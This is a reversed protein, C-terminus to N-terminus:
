EANAHIRDRLYDALHHGASGVDQQQLLHFVLIRQAGKDVLSQLAHSVGPLDEHGLPAEGGIHGDHAPQGDHTNAGVPDACPFPVGGHPIDYLSFDLSAVAGQVHEVIM